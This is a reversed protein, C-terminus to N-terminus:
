VVAEARLVKREHRTASTALSPRKALREEEEEEEGRCRTTHRVVACPGTEPVRGQRAPAAPTAGSGSRPSDHAGARYM